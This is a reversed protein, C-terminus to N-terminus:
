DLRCAKKSAFWATESVVQYGVADTTVQLFAPVTAQLHALLVEIIGISEAGGVVILILTWEDFTTCDAGYEAVSIITLSISLGWNLVDRGHRCTWAILCTPRSSPPSRKFCEKICIGGTKEQTTQVHM